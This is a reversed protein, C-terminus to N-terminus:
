EWGQASEENLANYRQLIARDLKNKFTKKFLVVKIWISNEKREPWAVWPGSKSEMIRCEISVSGAFVVEAFAKLKSVKKYPYFKTIEFPIDYGTSKTEKVPLKLRIFEAIKETLTVDLIRVQEYVRGTSSTYRPFELSVNGSGQKVIIGKIKIQSNLEIDAFSIDSIDYTKVGTVILETKRNQQSFLVVSITLILIISLILSKPKM